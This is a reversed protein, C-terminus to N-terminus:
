LTSEGTITFDCWGRIDEAYAAWQDLADRRLVRGTCFVTAGTIRTRMRALDNVSMALLLAKRRERLVQDRPKM